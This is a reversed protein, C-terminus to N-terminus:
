ITFLPNGGQGDLLVSQQASSSEPQIDWWSIVVVQFPAEKIPTYPEVRRISALKETVELMQVNALERM